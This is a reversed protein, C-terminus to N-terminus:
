CHDHFIVNEGVDVILVSLKWGFQGLHYCSEAVEQLVAEISEMESMTALIIVGNRM